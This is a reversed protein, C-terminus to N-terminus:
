QNSKRSEVCGDDPKKLAANIAKMELSHQYEPWAVDGHMAHITGKAILLAGRLRVNDTNVNEAHQQAGEYARTTTEIEARQERIEVAAKLEIYLAAYSTCSELFRLEEDTLRESM